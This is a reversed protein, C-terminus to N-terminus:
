GPEGKPHTARCGWGELLGPHVVNHPVVGLDAGAHIELVKVLLFADQSNRFIVVDGLKPPSISHSSFVFAGPDHIEQFEHVFRAEAIFDDSRAYAHISKAGNTSWGTVFKGVSTEFELTGNQQTWDFRFEGRDGAVRVFSNLFEGNEASIVARLDAPFDKLVVGADRLMRWGRRYIMPNRDYAGIHVTGAGRDILHQACPTKPPNRNSCPELTTFVEAGTLDVEPLKGLAVFEAHDGPKDKNEGRYAEAVKEGDRTIVVGVRPAPDTRGPEVQCKKALEIAREM